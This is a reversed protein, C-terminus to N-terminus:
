RQLNLDYIALLNKWLSYRYQSDIGNISLLYRVKSFEIDGCLAPEANTVRVPTGILDARM